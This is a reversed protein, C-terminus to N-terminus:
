PWNGMTKYAMSQKFQMPPSFNPEIIYCNDALDGYMIVYSGMGSLQSGNINISM